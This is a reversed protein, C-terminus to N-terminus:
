SCGRSLVLEYSSGDEAELSLSRAGQSELQEVSWTTSTAEVEGETELTIEDRTTEVILRAKQNLRFTHQVRSGLLIPMTLCEDVSTREDGDTALHTVELAFYTYGASSPPSCAVASAIIGYVLSIRSTINM